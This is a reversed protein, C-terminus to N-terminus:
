PDNSELAALFAAQRKQHRVLAAQDPAQDVRHRWFSDLAADISEVEGSEPDARKHELYAVIGVCEQRTFVSLRYRAYDEFTMAGYRLPNVLASRGILRQFTQNGIPVEVTRDLFGGTLHFVPDATLLHHELDAVLYAPLFFRFGGESFFSLADYNSDLVAPDLTSWDEVGAFAEVVEAPEIGQRSGILFADGPHPTASFAARVAAVTETQPTQVTRRYVAREGM